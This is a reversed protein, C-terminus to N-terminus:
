RKDGKRFVCEGAKSLCRSHSGTARQSFGLWESCTPGVLKLGADGTKKATIIAGRRAHVGPERMDISRQEHKGKYCSRGQQRYEVCFVEWTNMIAWSLKAATRQTKM